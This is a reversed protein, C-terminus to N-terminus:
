EETVGAEESKFLGSRSAILTALARVSSAEMLGFVDIDADLQKLLWTRLEIAVLSDVGLVNLPKTPDIEKASINLTSVLKVVIAEYVIDTAAELSEAAALLSGYNIIKGDSEASGSLTRMYRLHKFRPDCVWGPEEGTNQQVSFLVQAKIAPQRELKPNCFEDLITHFEEERIPEIGLDRLHNILDSSGYEALYGVSLIIGLDLATGKFGNIVRYRALADQFANGANYNAQGVNGIHTSVSSLLIFFDLDKPLVDHLNWSAHVKPKLATYYDALSMNAFTSDRLVMAGQFCGKVPPMGNSLCENLANKLSEVDSVDCRPTAVRVGMGELDGVLEMSSDKVNGSRSLLILNKAGRSAMWRAISRGLGGLGGSIVFSADPDFNYSNKRSSVIPVIDKPNPELVIKGSHVGSQMYRFSEQIESFPFSQTPNLEGIKGDRVLNMLNELIRSFRPGDHLSLFDIDLFEFRVNNKFKEMSLRASSYIDVKGIEVFRGFPAICDWTARLTDGSLSNVIVEVGRGKTMRKIGQAFTLDRSSFIHDPAIGYTNILLDRKEVSGVTAYIEAGRIKALQICAQGVGGAAAHILISEGRQINSIDYLAIYATVYVVTFGAACKFSLNDPIKTLTTEHARAFTGFTGSTSGCVRDGVKFKSNPCTRTIIGAGDRGLSNGTVQGLAVMIDLLNLGAAVIKFEVNGGALPLDHDPDDVFQLTDLLGPAGIVLKLARNPEGCFEGPHATPQTTKLAIADNMYGAEVVRSIYIAGNTEYFSNDAVNKDKKGLVSDILGITTNVVSVADKVEEVSLTIFKLAPNEQRIVRAFGTVIEATPNQPRPGGGQSLWFFSDLITTMKQLTKFNTEEIHDLFPRELEPLFICLKQEFDVMPMESLPVINCQATRSPLLAQRLGKAIDVQVPSENEYVIITSALTRPEREPELNTSIIISSYYNAEDPYDNFCLDVGSFGSRKLHADWESVSMLPCQQRLPEESLWWGPLLGFAFPIALFSMNTAEHLILKGGPKLLKMVNRLTHDINKTAHLVNGAFIVDYQKSEFGQEVPDKEINLTQFRMLDVTEHFTQKAMELFSPSIDTFDYRELRGTTEGHRTLIEVMARTACGTGAGVELIIMGSNKHALADLYSTLYFYSIKLGTGHQYVDEVLSDKFFMELPDVTGELIQGLVRGIAVLMKGEATLHQLKTELEAFVIDDEALKDWNEKAHIFEGRAHRDLQHQAWATYKKYWPKANTVKEEAYRNMYRRLYMYCVAERITLAQTPDETTLEAPPHFLSNASEQTLFTVDPKWDLNFSIHQHANKSQNQQRSSIATSVLGDVKVLPKKTASSIAIVSGEAQRLGLFNGKACVRLSDYTSEADAAIWLEKISTPVMAGGAERGGRTLAASASHFIGDLTTPHILHPQIYGSSMKSKVNPAKVTAVAGRDQDIAVNHLTQFTEGFDFGFTHFLEYLQKSSVRKRCSAEANAVTEVMMEVFKQRELGNDIPNVQTEYEPQILGRCHDRWDDGDFSSLQFENWSSSTSSTSDFFPRVYFHTEIGNTGTPVRLAAHFVVEKLRFGELVKQPNALQRSAELAMVLMGAGPYIISGTIRHDKIWPNESLRIWNRWIANSKNWDPVPAGLLELRPHQRFKYAKGIRSERWYTKTHNFPYPPLDVLTKPSDHLTTRSNIATIDVPQGRCFLWSAASLATDVANVKRKLISIYGVDKASPIRGIIERLSVQLASHPGVELLETVPHFIQQAGLKGSKAPREILMRSVADSFKVPSVLNNVWYEPRQLWDIPLRDGTLSSYFVPVTGKLKHYDSGSEVDGIRQLYEEAIKQMYPSHYAINVELRRNFVSEEDLLRQLAEVKNADGSITVNKPSNFCAITLAHSGVPKCMSEIYGLAKEPELAVSIMAGVGDGTSHSLNASLLGRYYAIRWASERSIAGAAYAAAIEGSSHGIVAGPQISWSRLLEILAVQLATCIPQSYAANNIMSSNEDQFYEEILSWSCGLKKLYADANQLSSRFKLLMMLERGMAFWQAGQGTFVFAVGGDDVSRVPMPTGALGQKLSDLDKAVISARWSFLTRRLSLTYSLDHLYKEEDEIKSSQRSLYGYYSEAVRKIGDEDYASLLFVQQTANEFLSHGNIDDMFSCGNVGNAKSHGNIGNAATCHCSVHKAIDNGNALATRNTANGNFRGSTLRLKPHIVTKQLGKLKRSTLYHYADDLIVHANSGGLGFSNVSARRLGPQPWVTPETPFKLHWQDAPIKPNPKEFWLNPPIIGSEVVAVAKILGAIGAAGELHGINSKLAGVYMPDESSRYPTFVDSIAGAEIPDGTPTGTGHAEFFRTAGFDLGANEYARHILKVQGQRTPQTIGPSKGDQNSSTSRIVARITDGDRLADSIRKLVVVGFGEGRSYGNARHDFTYCIGDPSLFGMSSFPMMVDPNYFLNCGGVISMSVDGSKLGQCALHTANLSSSCATDLTMSPGRFDYFWSLRNSLLAAGNGTAAYKADMEPDRAVVVEYEHSFCGIHVSTDSGVTKTMPIGANELAHYVTELLGRQQPDMDTAENPAISFFPADFAAIDDKLYHAHQVNIAGLRNRDPHYFADVNYRDAPTKTLASRSSLLLNYFAEPTTADGPFRLGLGVVAIDEDVYKAM